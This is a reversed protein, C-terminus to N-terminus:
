QAVKALHQELYSLSTAWAAPALQISHAFGPVIMVEHEVRNTTLRAAMNNIQDLHTIFDQDANVLLMPPDTPDVYTIPSQAATTAPCTQPNCGYLVEGFGPTTIANFDNLGSWSVVVAVRSGTSLSGTGAM